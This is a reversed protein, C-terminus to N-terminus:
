KNAEPSPTAPAAPAEAPAKPRRKRTLAEGLFSFARGIEPSVRSQAKAVAYADLVLKWADHEAQLRGDQLPRLKEELKRRVSEERAAAKKARKVASAIKGPTIGPVKLGNNEAWAAAFREALEAYGDIPKVLRQREEQSLPRPGSAAARASSKKGSAASKKVPKGGKKPSVVKSKVKAM